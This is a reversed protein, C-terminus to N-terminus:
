EKYSIESWIKAPYTLIASAFKNSPMKSTETRKLKTLGVTFDLAFIGLIASKIQEIKYNENLTSFNQPFFLGIVHESNEKDSKPPILSISFINAENIGLGEEVIIQVEGAAVAKKFAAAIIKAKFNDFTVNNFEPSSTVTPFFKTSKDTQWQNLVHLFLRNLDNATDMARNRERTIFLGREQNFNEMFKMTLSYPSQPNETLDPSDLPM